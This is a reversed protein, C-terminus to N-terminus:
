AGMWLRWRQGGVAAGDRGRDIGDAGSGLDTLPTMTPRGHACQFPFACRSLRRLLRVCEDRSLEDNFKVATRCSRSHLLQLIGPPCGHFRSTWSKGTDLHANRLPPIARGDDLRWAEGLLLNILIRPEGRCRELMSPPLGTVRVTTMQSQPSTKQMQFVVGWSAFHEQHQQILEGERGAAEFVVPKGLSEVVPAAGSDTDEFYDAMLDELRCREDAAHQDVMVLASTTKGDVSDAAAQLPLKVLIFKRDVQAIVEADVLATRSLRGSLETSGAAFDVAGDKDQEFDPDAPGTPDDQVSTVLTPDGWTRPSGQRWESSRTEPGSKPELLRLRKSPRQEVDRIMDTNDVVRDEARSIPVAAERSPHADDLQLDDVPKHVLKGGEGILWSQAPQSKSGPQSAESATVVHRSPSGVKHRYWRDFPSRSRPLELDALRGGPFAQRSSPQTSLLSQSACGGPQTLKATSSATGNSAKCAARPHLHLKALFDASVTKLLHVIDGLVNRSGGLVHGVDVVPTDTAFLLIQFYFMPWRELGKRRKPGEEEVLGFNSDRFVGNVAEYLVNSDRNSVLPQIGLSMTQSRRTAVPITSISGKIRVHRSSASVPLWSSAHAADALGAQSFLMSARMMVHPDATSKLRLERRIATENLSVSLEASWALLLTVLERVLHDLEKDIASRASFVAARRKVRVPMSGFLDHVSVRTGHGFLELRREPPAPFRRALLNANHMSLCADSDHRRHHSTVSLLSLSAVSALFFGHKGHVHSGSDHKSTHHLKGLGGTERFEAPEIGLGDDEVTCNGRVYDLHIHISAARADLSNKVLGCVVDNLSVVAASSGIQAVVDDPLKRISM